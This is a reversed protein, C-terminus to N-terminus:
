RIIKKVNSVTKFFNEALETYTYVTVKKGNAYKKLKNIIKTGFGKRRFKRLVYLQIHPNNRPKWEYENYNDWEEYYLLGWGVIKKGVTMYCVYSRVDYFNYEFNYILLGNAGYSIKKLIKKLDNSIKHTKTVYIM